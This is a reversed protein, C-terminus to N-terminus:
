DDSDYGLKKDLEAIMADEFLSANSLKNDNEPRNDDSVLGSAKAISYTCRNRDNNADSASKKLELTNHFRNKHVESNKHLSACHYEESFANLWEKEEESLQDVYDFDIYEQRVRPNLKPDLAPYKTESRKTKKKSSKKENNKPM